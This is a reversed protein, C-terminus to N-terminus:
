SIVGQLSQGYQRISYWLAANAAILFTGELIAASAFARAPPFGGPRPIHRDQCPRTVNRMTRAHACEDPM